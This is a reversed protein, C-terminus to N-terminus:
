GGVFYLIFICFYIFTSSSLYRFMHRVLAVLMIITGVLILNKIIGRSEAQCQPGFNSKAGPPVSAGLLSKMFPTHSETEGNLFFNGGGGAM